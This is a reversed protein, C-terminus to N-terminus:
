CKIRKHLYIMYMGVFSTDVHYIDLLLSPSVDLLNRDFNYESKFCEYGKNNYQTLIKDLSARLGM